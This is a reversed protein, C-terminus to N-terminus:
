LSVDQLVQAGLRAIAAILVDFDERRSRHNVIAVRLAFRGGLVTSSPVAIGQEQVRLLVEQNLANLRDEPVGPPAYRFCAVNLAVPAVLALDPHAEVQRALYRAQEVNQEILRSFARVGHAKLSLWVKLAKFNRTLDVGREAFPLGGAMVGRTATALYSATTAFAARHAQADRVLVCAVEFPLYMWKHLDFAISDAQELGSVLPRLGESLRALAGYAGDVHFWLAEERCVAALASLDDTAGTNVTGASGVVCFPRLGARRDADIMARLAKVDIRFDETTPVRRWSANGLGLLEVAKQLWAHTESSGYVCLGLREGGQLGRARVDFGARANRAVALGIVNAMTGGTVLVGSAERPFGMLETLWALVQHEVLAPAQHFGAMHPNLGAALMDAMMALPTGTGQVWGWFRPHLNGNPFPLVREVFDRYAAEAGQPELPLPESFSARVAEPMPQWAPRQRLTSLHDIMDDVMRHALARFASWDAPDLTEEAPPSATPPTHEM